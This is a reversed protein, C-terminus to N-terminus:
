NRTNEARRGFRDEFSRTSKQQLAGSQDHWLYLAPINRRDAWAAGKLPGMVFLATSLADASTADPAAVTVSGEFQAPKQEVPDLIHGIPGDPTMVAREANGSTAVSVDAVGVVAVARDRDEPDAIGITWAPAGPPRGLALVQGGFDLLANQVGHRRLARAAADLAIGKGIGGFDIGVGPADFRVSRSAPSLQVHRWGIPLRETRAAGDLVRGPAGGGPPRGDDRLGLAMTLPEVTPDFAGGTLRAWRLAASVADFLDPSCRVPALAAERNLRSVESTPMWNSLIAELRGVESFADDFAQEQAPGGTEIALRTGMLFRARAVGGAAPARPLATAAGWSDTALCLIAALAAACEGARRFAVERAGAIRAM